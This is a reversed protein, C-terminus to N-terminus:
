SPRFKFFWEAWVKPESVQICTQRVSDKKSYKPNLFEKRRTKVAFWISVTSECVTSREKHSDCLFTGYLGSYTHHALFTLLSTNFEFQTPMTHWVKYVCDLFQIFIPSQEDSSPQNVGYRKAFMHGFALFDKDILAQFGDITRYYPDLMLQALACMQSTRDWGDSCHVIVNFNGSDLTSLIQNV